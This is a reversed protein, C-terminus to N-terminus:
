QRSKSRVPLIPLVLGQMGFTDPCDDTEPCGDTPIPCDVSCDDTLPCSDTGPCTDTPFPCDDTGPCGDTPDPTPCFDTSPGAGPYSSAVIVARGTLIDVVLRKHREPIAFVWEGPEMGLIAKLDEPDLKGGSGGGRGSSDEELGHVWQGSKRAEFRTRMGAWQAKSISGGGSAPDADPFTVWENGWGEGAGPKGAPIGRSPKGANPAALSSLIEEGGQTQKLKQEGASDVGGSDDGGGLGGRDDLGPVEPPLRLEQKPGPLRTQQQRFNPQSYVSRYIPM